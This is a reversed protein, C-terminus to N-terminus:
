KRELCFNMLCLIVIIKKNLRAILRAQSENIDDHMVAIGDISLADFIGETLICVQWDAKQADLNFVYGPPQVNIYKPIKDDIKSQQSIKQLDKRFWNVSLKGTCRM